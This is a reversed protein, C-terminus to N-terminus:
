LKVWIAALQLSNFELLNFKIGRFIKDHQIYGDFSNIKFKHHTNDDYYKIVKM